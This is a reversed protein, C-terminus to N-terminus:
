TQGLSKRAARRCTPAAPTIASPIGPDPHQSYIASRALRSAQRFQGRERRVYDPRNILNSIVAVAATQFKGSPGFKVDEYDEAKMRLQDCRSVVSPTEFSTEVHHAFENRIRRILILDNYEDETILGLAYCAEIRAHFSGLPANAGEVLDRTQQQELMFALLVDKLQQELFGASILVQGRDSEQRLTQIFPWFRELNPHTARLSAPMPAIDM